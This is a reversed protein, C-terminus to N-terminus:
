KRELRLREIVKNSILDVGKENLHRYDAFLYPKYTFFTDRSYDLFLTNTEKAIQIATKISLDVGSASIMYPPCVIFLLIGSDKCTKIFDKYSNIKVTDLKTELTYDFKTLTGSREHHLPIYGNFNEFKSKNGSTNGAIIPLLLSNYPYISSLMKIKEFRGKLEVISRIEPHDKYYPLLSSIRDYADQSKSFNGADFSLVVMKPIYRKIVTKLLADHYFIPYGYRGANYCTLNLKSEFIRPDFINVARSSGMILVDAETKDIVFTAQYDYGSKQKFYFKKLLFGISRDVIFVLLFFAALKILFQNAFFNRTKNIM